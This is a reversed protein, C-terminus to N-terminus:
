LSTTNDNGLFVRLVQSISSLVTIHVWNKRQSSTCLNGNNSKCLGKISSPVFDAVKDTFLFPSSSKAIQTYGEVQM